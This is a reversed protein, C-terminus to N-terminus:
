ADGPNYSYASEYSIKNCCGSVFLGGNGIIEEGVNLTGTGSITPDSTINAFNIESNINVNCSSPQTASIGPAPSTNAALNVLYFSM